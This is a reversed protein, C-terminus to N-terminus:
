LCLHIAFLFIRFMKCHRSLQDDYLHKAADHSSFEIQEQNLGEDPQGIRSGFLSDIKPHREELARPM